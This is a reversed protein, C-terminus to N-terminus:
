QTECITDSLKNAQQLPRAYLRQSRGASRHDNEKSARRRRGSHFLNKWVCALRARPPKQLQTHTHTRAEMRKMQLPKAVCVCVRWSFGTWGCALRVRDCAERTINETNAVKQKSEVLTRARGPIRNACISPTRACCGLCRDIRQACAVRDIEQARLTAFHPM